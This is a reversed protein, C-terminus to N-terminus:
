HAPWLYQRLQRVAFREPTGRFKDAEGALLALTGHEGFVQVMWWWNPNIFEEDHGCDVCITTDGEHYQIRLVAKTPSDVCRLQLEGALRQCLHSQVVSARRRETQVEVYVPTPKTLAPPPVSTVTTFTPACAQLAMLAIQPAIWSM